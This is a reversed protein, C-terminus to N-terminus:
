LMFSTHSLHMRNFSGGFISVHICYVQGTWFFLGEMRLALHSLCEDLPFSFASVVGVSFYNNIIENPVPDGEDAIDAPIVQLSWRDMQVLTSEEIQKM